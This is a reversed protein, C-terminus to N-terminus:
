VEYGLREAVRDILAQAQAQGRYMKRAVALRLAEGALEPREKKVRTAVIMWGAQYLSAMHRMRGESGLEAM